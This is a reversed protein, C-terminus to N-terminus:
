HAGKRWVVMPITRLLIAMDALLSWTRVYDLELEARRPYGVNSRGEAVWAGTLGPKLALLLPAVGGYHAIEAPVIPRPGILSMDGRFVNWLQPLEDLSTARLFRGIPTLRPDRDEPLKFDSAVYLQHLEADAHLAAEADIRMSRFKYITFMRRHRGCRRQGFIVPGPSSLRVAIAVVVFLPALLLMAVASVVIDVLRKCALMQLQPVVDIRVSSELVPPAPAEAGPPTTGFPDAPYIVPVGVAACTVITQQVVHYLSKVPVALHVEDILERDLIQALADFGGLMRAKIQAADDQPDSDLYGHVQYRCWFNERLARACEVAAHGSGIILVRRTGRGSVKRIGTRIVLRVLMMASTALGVVLALHLVRPASLQVDLLADGAVFMLFALVAVAVQRRIEDSWAHIKRSDYTRFVVAIWRWVFAAVFAELVAVLPLAREYWPQGPLPMVTRLVLAAVCAAVFDVRAFWRLLVESGFHLPPLMPVDGNGLATLPEIPIAATADAAV